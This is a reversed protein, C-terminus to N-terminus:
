GPLIKPSRQQPQKTGRAGQPAMSQTGRWLLPGGGEHLHLGGHGEDLPNQKSAVVTAGDHYPPYPPSHGMQRVSAALWIGAPMSQYVIAMTPGVPLIPPWTIPTHGTTLYLQLRYRVLGRAVHVSPHHAEHQQTGRRSRGPAFLRPPPPPRNPLAEWSSSAPEHTSNGSSRTDGARGPKAQSSANATSPRAQTHPTHGPATRSHEPEAQRATRQPQPQAPQGTAQTHHHTQAGLPNQEQGLQGRSSSSAAAGGPQRRQGELDSSSGGPAAQEPYPQSRQQSGTTKPTTHPGGAAAEQEAQRQRYRETAETDEKSGRPPTNTVWEQQSKLVAAIDVPPAPNSPKANLYRQLQDEAQTWTHHNPKHLGHIRFQEKIWDKRDRHAM